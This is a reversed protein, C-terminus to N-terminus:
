NRVLLVLPILLLLAFVFARGRFGPTTTITQGDSQGSRTVDTTTTASRDNQLSDNGTTVRETKTMPDTDYLMVEEGDAFGDGDTDPNSVNTGLRAERGDYLGDGDTDNAVPRDFLSRNTPRPPYEPTTTYRDIWADYSQGAVEEVVDKLTEHTIPGDHANLRWFVEQISRTGNTEQRINADLALLVYMGKYYPKEDHVLVGGTRNNGKYTLVWFPILGTQYRHLASFYEASGEILWETKKTTKFTQRTHAYEHSWIAAPETYDGPTDPYTYLEPREPLTPLGPETAYTDFWSRVSDDAVTEVIELFDSYTVEGNHRNLRRVVDRLSREGNTEKRIKADLAAMMHTGNDHSIDYYDSGILVNDSSGEELYAMLQEFDFRGNEYGNIFDFYNMLSGAIRWMDESPQFLLPERSALYPLFTDGDASSSQVIENQFTVGRAGNELHFPVIPVHFIYVVEDRGGIYMQDSMRRLSKKAEQINATNSSAASDIIVIRQGRSHVVTKTYEGLFVFRPSLYGRTDLTVSTALSGSTSRLSEVITKRPVLGWSDAIDGVRPRPGTEITVTFAIEPDTTEGNWTLNKGERTFGRVSEVSFDVWNSNDALNLTVPPPTQSMDFVARVALTGSDGRHHSDTIHYTVPIQGQAPSHRKEVSTRYHPSMAYGAVPQTVLLLIVFLFAAIRAHKQM